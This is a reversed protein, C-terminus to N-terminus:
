LGYERRIGDIRRRAKELLILVDGIDQRVDQTRASNYFNGARDHAKAVDKQM